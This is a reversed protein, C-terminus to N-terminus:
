TYRRMEPLRKCLENYLDPYNEKIPMLRGNTIRHDGLWNSYRVNEREFPEKVSVDYYHMTELSNKAIYAWVDKSTWWALPACMKVGDKREFEVGKCLLMKKRGPAEEARLGWFAGDINNEQYTKAFTNKLQKTIMHGSNVKDGYQSYLEFITHPTKVHLLNIHYNDIWWNITDWIDPLDGGNGRDVWVVPIDPAQELVLGLMACSDKGWSTSIVPNSCESLMKSIFTRSRKVQAATRFRYQVKYTELEGDKYKM